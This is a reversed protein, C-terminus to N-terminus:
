RVTRRRRGAVGFAGLASGLLWVAAPVPVAAPEQFSVGLQITDLGPTAPMGPMAHHHFMTGLLNVWVNDQDFRLHSADFRYVLNSGGANLLTVSTIPLLNNAADQFRIEASQLLGGPSYMYDGSGTYRLTITDHLFDISWTQATSGSVDHFGTLDPGAADNGSVIAFDLMLPGGVPPGYTEEWLVAIQHGNFSAHALAPPALAASGALGLVPLAIFRAFPKM